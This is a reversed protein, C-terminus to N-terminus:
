KCLSGLVMFGTELNKDMHNEMIRARSGVGQIKFVLFCLELNM